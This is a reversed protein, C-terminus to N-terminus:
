SSSSYSQSGSRRLYRWPGQYAPHEPPGYEVAAAVIDAPEGLRDLMTRVAAEDASDVGARSAAIHERM